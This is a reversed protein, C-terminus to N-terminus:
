ASERLGPPLFNANKQLDLNFNAIGQLEKAM